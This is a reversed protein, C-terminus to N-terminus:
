PLVLICAQFHFVTIHLLDAVKKLHVIKENASTCDDCTQVQAM